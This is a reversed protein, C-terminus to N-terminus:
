QLLAECQQLAAEGQATGLCELYASAADDAPPAPSGGAEPTAGAGGLAGGLGGLASSDLGFQGLLENLPKADGPAAIEQPENVESLTVTFGV